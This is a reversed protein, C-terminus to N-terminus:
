PFVVCNIAICEDWQDVTLEGIGGRSIIGANNMTIDLRGLQKVTADVM